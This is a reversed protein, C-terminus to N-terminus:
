KHSERLRLSSIGRTSYFGCYGLRNVTTSLGLLSLHFQRSLLRGRQLTGLRKLLRDKCQFRLSRTDRSLSCVVENRIIPHDGAQIHSNVLPVALDVLQGVTDSFSPGLLRRYVPNCRRIVM